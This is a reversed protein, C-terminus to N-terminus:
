ATGRPSLWVWFSLGIASASILTMFTGPFFQVFGPLDLFLLYGLDALGGVMGTVLIASLNGRWIFAAGVITVVGFWLLNWAHQNLVGGVAAHYDAVLAQPDVTDAIAAFGASTDQMLTLIGALAHVLGWVVWLVAAAKLALAHPRTM